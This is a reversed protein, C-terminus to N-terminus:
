AERVGTRAQFGLWAPRLGRIEIWREKAEVLNGRLMELTARADYDFRNSLSVKEQSVPDILRAAATISGLEVLADFVNWRIIAVRFLQDMGYESAIKLAPAAAREVETLRGLDFLISTHVMAQWAHLAPQDQESLRERLARLREFALEAGGGSAMEYWAQLCLIEIHATGQGDQETLAAAQEIANAAERQHGNYYRISAIERLAKLQGARLPLEGYLAFAQEYLALAQSLM